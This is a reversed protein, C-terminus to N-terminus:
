AGWVQKVNKTKFDKMETQETQTTEIGFINANESTTAIGGGLSPM